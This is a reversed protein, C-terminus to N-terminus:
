EGFVRKFISGSSPPHNGHKNPGPHGKVTIMVVFLVFLIIHLGLVAYGAGLPGFPSVFAFLYLFSMWGPLGLNHLRRTILSLMMLTIPAFAFPVAMLWFGSTDSVIIQEAASAFGPAFFQLWATAVNAIIVGIGFFFLMGIIFDKRRLRGSFLGKHDIQASIVNAISGIAQQTGQLYRASQNGKSLPPLFDNQEATRQHGFSDRKVAYAVAEVVTGHELGARILMEEIEHPSNGAELKQEILNLLGKEPLEKHM